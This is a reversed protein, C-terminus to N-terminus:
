RFDLEMIKYENSYYFLLSLPMATCYPDTFLNTLMVVCKLFPSIIWQVQKQFFSKNHLVPMENGSYILKKGDGHELSRDVVDLISKSYLEICNIRNLSFPLEFYLDDFLFTCNM